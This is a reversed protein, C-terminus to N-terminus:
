TGAILQDSAAADADDEVSEDSPKRNVIKERFWKMRQRKMYLAALEERDGRLRAAIEEPSDPYNRLFELHVDFYSNPKFIAYVGEPAVRSM